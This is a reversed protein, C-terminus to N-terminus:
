NKGLVYKEFWALDWEMKAKRHTYRTLGHPEGPYVILETPVELYERLARYLMRSHEPPTREDKEGVHILTPTTVHGLDWSPSTRQYAQPKEWPHGQKFVKPYAPEDNIGWEMATDLISAGSSAARLKFPLNKRTILCNTLYGGNSWGMVAVREPDAIGEDILHKIGAIIDSVEIDNENGILATLFEDGYGSSGRYNPCLTAYGNVTFYLRGNHPDYTAEVKASTTPGGHIAVVLPLKRGAEYDPPLELVGGVTAGDPAKWTIHKVQPLKWKDAQPNLHTLRRPSDSQRSLVYLDPFREPTSMLVVGTNDAVDADMGHVVQPQWERPPELELTRPDVAAVNVFGAREVLAALSGGVTWRLPTGYGRTHIGGRRKVQAVEWTGNAETGVIIETPYADFVACFAYRKGDPSWALSNLWAHPSAAQARYVDTPPTTVTGNEWVDVRSEGESRIVTDDHASIMAVRKGDRTVVFERIYRKEAIVKEARWTTLDLRWMESVTRRGHGYHLKDFKNRLSTFPVDDTVSTTTTYFLQGAEAALDYGSVGGEVQTVPQPEGGEISIRWVQTKGDYPPATENGRKRNGLFYITTGDASWTPQRDDARDFTLRRPKPNEGTAILWLDTKRDDTSPQWRAECYAVHLGDPSVAFQTILNVSFYDEVTVAHTREAASVPVAVVLVLLATLTRFRM